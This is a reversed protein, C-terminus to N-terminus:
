QLRVEELSVKTPAVSLMSKSREPSKYLSTHDLDTFSLEAVNYGYRSLENAYRMQEVCTRRQVVEFLCVPLDVPSQM